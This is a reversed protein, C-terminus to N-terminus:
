QSDGALAWSLKIARTKASEELIHMLAMFFYKSSQNEDM